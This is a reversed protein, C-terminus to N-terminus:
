SFSYLEQSKQTAVHIFLVVLLKQEKKRFLINLTPRQRYTHLIELSRSKIHQKISQIFICVCQGSASWHASVLMYLKFVSIVVSTTVSFHLAKLTPPTANTDKRCLRLLSYKEAGHKKGIVNEKPNLLVDMRGDMCPLKSRKM